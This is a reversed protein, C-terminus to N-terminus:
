IGAKQTFMIGARCTRDALIKSWVVVGTKYNLDEGFNVLQSEKLPFNTVIGIGTDSIDVSKAALSWRNTKGSEIVDMYLSVKESCPIRECNRKAEGSESFGLGAPFNEAKLAQDVIEGMHCLDFPKAMFYCMERDNPHKMNKIFNRHNLSNSSMVIIKTKPYLSNVKRLLEFADCDKLNLNIICLDFRCAGLKELATKGTPATTIELAKRKLTKSLGYLALPDDEVLLINKTM